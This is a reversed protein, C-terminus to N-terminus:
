DYYNKQMKLQIASFAFIILFLVFALASAYGLKMYEFSQKYIYFVSVNTAKAPGGNTMIKIQDFVQFSAITTVILVFTRVERLLPYTIDKFIDFFNAGDIKAAEYYSQPIDKLAAIYIITYYGILMWASVFAIWFLAQNPNAIFTQAEIGFFRLIANFYGRKEDFMFMWIIAVVVTSISFPVFYVTRFFQQLKGPISNIFVALLLSLFYVMPVFMVTYKLTTLVSQWWSTDKMLTLYNKFGIFQMAELANWRHLSVYFAIIVPLFVFIALGIVDPALMAYAFLYEKKKKSTFKKKHRKTKAKM